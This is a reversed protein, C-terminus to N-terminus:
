NRFASAQVGPPPWLHVLERQYCVIAMASSGVPRHLACPGFNWTVIGPAIVQGSAGCMHLAIFVFVTFSLLRIRNRHM